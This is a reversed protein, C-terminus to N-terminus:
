CHTRSSSDYVSRFVGVAQPQEIRTPETHTHASTLTLTCMHFANRCTVFFVGQSVPRVKRCVVRRQPIAGEQTLRHLEADENGSPLIVASM